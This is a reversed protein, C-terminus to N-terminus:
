SRLSQRVTNGLRDAEHFPPDTETIPALLPRCDPQHRGIPTMLIQWLQIHRARFSGACTLLYYEWMRKFEESYNNKLRSWAKQFRENWALLTKEYHPGLNHVDEIVFLGEVAKGIQALSPLMGNPFIYRNIWPDCNVRSRNGGITHLLFIGNPKLCRRVVEMFTRYNKHGVHEFMGVSVIKDFAGELHRYDKDEITVPLGRCYERAFLNQERSINVGTVQCRYREAMYRALGGWGSGIDLVKDGPKLDLKRCILEMKKLQAEDLDETEHFFACSYQFNADLFTFFLDNGLDYHRRAIIDARQLSQLNFFRASLYTMLWPLNKRVKEEVGASLLRCIFEDIRECDWWGAMYSEGLALSGGKIVRGYFREDHVRIDWPADGGIRVGAPCLIQEM